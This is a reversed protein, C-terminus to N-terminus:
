TLIIKRGESASRYIAEEIEVVRLYDSAINELPTSDLLNSVVHANLAHVCDGAFGLQEKVEFVKDRKMSGKERFWLSGDGFLELVGNTGEVHGEGMTYRHDEALHDIHRNGDLLSRVDGLHDFIIYGADEGSIAPNLQRLDAYVATPEGALFRYTDIWHVGTEHVLFREMKQFYPQRNLYAQPGQGDGPRMRFSLNQLVGIRGDDLESKIHRYWPQFRFNEHIVLTVGAADAENTLQRAEELSRCFPKQCIVTKIKASFALRLVDAHAVPPVVVDLIDPKETALMDAVDTFARAGTAEAKEKDQDCVGVLTARPMRMWSEVHFQAFYGAGVCAVLLDEQQAQKAM